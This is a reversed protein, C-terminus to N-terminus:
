FRIDYTLAVIHIYFTNFEGSVTGRVPSSQTVTPSGCDILTYTLGITQTATLKYEAGVSYALQSSLPLALTRYQDDVPSTDYSVGCMGAWQETFAYKTGLAFHYTDNFNLDATTSGNIRGSATIDPNGFESWDQWGLNGMVAWQKTLDQYASFMVAQPITFDVDLNNNAAISGPDSSDIVDNFNLDIPSMYTLGFRTGQVPEVLIGGGGGVGFADSKVVLQGDGAGPRRLATHAELQGLMLIPGAGLSLWDNVKYAAVPSVSYTALSIDQVYYRGVWSDGYDMAAGCYSGASLGLRWDESLPQTYYFGGAPALGGANGGNDGAVTTSGNAGFRSDVYMPQLGLLLEPQTLRTMGAPNGSATSADLASAARGAASMGNDPTGREYLWLGGGPASGTGAVL